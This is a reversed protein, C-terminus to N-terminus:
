SIVINSYHVHQDEKINSARLIAHLYISMCIELLIIVIQASLSFPEKHALILCSSITLSTFVNM